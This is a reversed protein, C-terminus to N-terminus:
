IDNEERWSLILSKLLQGYQRKFNYFDYGETEHHRLERDISKLLFSKNWLFKARFVMFVSDFMQDVWERIAAENAGFLQGRPRESDMVTRFVYDLLEHIEQLDVDVLEIGSDSSESM